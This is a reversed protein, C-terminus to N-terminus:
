ECSMTIVISETILCALGTLLDRLKRSHSGERNLCSNSKLKLRKDLHTIAVLSQEISQLTIVRMACSDDM